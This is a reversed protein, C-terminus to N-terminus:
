INAKNCLTSENTPLDQIYVRVGLTCFEEIIADDNSDLTVSTSIERCGNGKGCHHINGINLSDFTLGYDYARRADEISSVVFIIRRDGDKLNLDGVFDVSGKVSRVYVELEEESCAEIFSCAVPDGSTEDSAVLITNGGMHPVWKAMIQGHLLRDDVRVLLIM